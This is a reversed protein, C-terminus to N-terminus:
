GTHHCACGFTLRLDPWTAGVVVSATNPLRAVSFPASRDATPAETLQLTAVLARSPLDSSWPPTTCADTATAGTCQVNVYDGDQLLHACGTVLPRRVEDFKFWGIFLAHTGHLGAVDIQMATVVVSHAPWSSTKMVAGNLDRPESNHDIALKQQAMGHVFLQYDRQLKVTTQWTLTVVLRELALQVHSAM